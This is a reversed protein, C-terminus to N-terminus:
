THIEVSNECVPALRGGLGVEVHELDRALDLEVADAHVRGFVVLAHLEVQAHGVHAEEDELVVGLDVRERPGLDALQAELALLNTGM